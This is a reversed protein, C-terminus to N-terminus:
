EAIGAASAFFRVVTDAVRPWSESVPAELARGRCAAVHDAVLRGAGPDGDAVVLWGPKDALYEVISDQRPHATVAIRAVPLALYDVVKSPLQRPDRNGVVVVADYRGAQEAMESWPRSPETRIRIPEPLGNLMGSWDAGFQHFEIVRWRGSRALSTLFPVVSIRQGSLTGFHALRLRERCAGNAGEGAGPGAPAAYGNPRVLIRLGPFLAKLAEAQGRTTVVAGAASQWLRTEVRRSRAAALGHVHPERVTLIWPDGLDAVYPIGQAALRRAGWALTSFPFGVLLAADARPTWAALHRWTWPEFRDILTAACVRNALRRPMGAATGNMAAPHGPAPGCILEVDWRRRMATVIERTRIGRPAFPARALYSVVVVKM